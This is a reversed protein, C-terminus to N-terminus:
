AKIVQAKTVAADKERVKVVTAMGFALKKGQGRAWLRERHCIIGHCWGPKTANGFMTDERLSGECDSSVDQFQRQQQGERQEKLNMSALYCGRSAERTHLGCGIM